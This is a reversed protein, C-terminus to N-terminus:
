FGDIVEPAGGGGRAGGAGGRRALTTCGQAAGAGPCAPHAGAAGRGDDPAHGGQLPQAPNRHGRGGRQVLLGGAPLLAFSTSNSRAALHRLHIPIEVSQAPMELTGALPDLQLPTGSVIAEPKTTVSSFCCADPLSWCGPRSAVRPPWSCSADKTCCPNSVICGGQHM